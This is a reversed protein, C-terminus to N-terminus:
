LPHIAEHRHELDNFRLSKQAAIQSAALAHFLAPPNGAWLANIKFEYGRTVDREASEACEV